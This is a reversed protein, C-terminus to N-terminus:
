IGKVRINVGPLPNNDEASTVTGSVTVQQAYVATSLFLFLFAVPLSYVFTDRASM